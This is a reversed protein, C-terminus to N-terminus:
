CSTECYALSHPYPQSTGFTPGYTWAYHMDESATVLGQNHQSIHHLVELLIIILILFVSLSVIFLPRFYFDTWTSPLQEAPKDSPPSQLGTAPEYDRRQVPASAESIGTDSLLLTDNQPTQSTWYLHDEGAPINIQPAAEFSRSNHCHYEAQDQIELQPSHVVDFPYRSTGGDMSNVARENAENDRM